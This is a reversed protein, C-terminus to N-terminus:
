VAPQQWSSSSPSTTETGESDAGAGIRRQIHGSWCQASLRSEYMLEPLTYKCFHPASQDELLPAPAGFQEAPEGRGSSLKSSSGFITRQDSSRM